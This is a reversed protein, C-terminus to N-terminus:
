ILTVTRDDLVDADGEGRTGSATAPGSSRSGQRRVKVCGSLGSLRGRRWALRIVQIMQHPMKRFPHPLKTRPSTRQTATGTVQTYVTASLLSNGCAEILQARGLPLSHTNSSGLRQPRSLRRVHLLELSPLM